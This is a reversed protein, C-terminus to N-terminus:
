RRGGYYIGSTTDTSGSLQPSGIIPQSRGFGLVLYGIVPLVGLGWVGFATSRGFARALGTGVVISLTLSAGFSVVPLMMFGIPDTYQMTDSTLEAITCILPLALLSIWVTSRGGIRLLAITGYVPVLVAWGPQGAKINVKWIAVATLITVTFVVLLLAILMVEIAVLPAAGYGAAANASDGDLTFAYNM